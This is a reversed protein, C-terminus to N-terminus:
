TWLQGCVMTALILLHALIQIWMTQSTWHMSIGVYSVMLFLYYSFNPKRQRGLSSYTFCIDMLQLSHLFGDISPFAFIWWNFPICFCWVQCLKFIALNVKNKCFWCFLAVNIADSLLILMFPEIFGLYYNTYVHLSVVDEVGFHM